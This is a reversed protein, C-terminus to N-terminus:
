RTSVTLIQLFDEILAKRKAATITLLQLVQLLVLGKVAFYAM